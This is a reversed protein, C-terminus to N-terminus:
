YEEIPPYVPPTYAIGEPVHPLGKAGFADILVPSVSGDLWLVNAHNPFHNAIHGHGLKSTANESAFSVDWMVPVKPFPKHDPPLTIPADTYAGFYDYCGRLSYKHYLDANIKGYDPDEEAQIRFDSDFSQNSPCAFSGDSVMYEGKFSLLCDANNAGGSWPLQNEHEYAYIHLALGLRSLNMACSARRAAERARALGPLLIAALIGIVVVVVLLEILTFGEARNSKIRSNRYM